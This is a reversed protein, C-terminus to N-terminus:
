GATSNTDSSGSAQPPNAPAGAEDKPKPRWGLMRVAVEQAQEPSLQDTVEDAIGGAQLVRLSGEVTSAISMLQTIDIEDSAVNALFPVMQSPTLGNAVAITKAKDLRRASEAASLAAIQRMKLLPFSVEKGDVILVYPAGFASVLSM